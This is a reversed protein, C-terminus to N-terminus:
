ATKVGVIWGHRAFDAFWEGANAEFEKASGTAREAAQACAEALPAGEKLRRLLEFAPDSV